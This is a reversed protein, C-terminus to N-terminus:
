MAGVPQDSQKAVVAKRLAEPQAEDLAAALRFLEAIIMQRGPLDAEHIHLRWIALEFLSDQTAELVEPGLGYGGMHIQGPSGEDARGYKACGRGTDVCITSRLSETSKKFVELWTAGAAGQETSSGQTLTAQDDAGRPQQAGPQLFHGLRETFVLSGGREHRVCMSRWICDYM